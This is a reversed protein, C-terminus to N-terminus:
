SKTVTLSNGNLSSEYCKLVGGVGASSCDTKYSNGHQGCVFENSSSNYSWATHTGQHPCSGTFAKYSTSSIKITNQTKNNKVFLQKEYILLYTKLTNELTKSDGFSM